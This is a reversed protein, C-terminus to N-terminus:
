AKQGEGAFFNFPVNRILYIYLSLAYNHPSIYQVLVITKLYNIIITVYHLM